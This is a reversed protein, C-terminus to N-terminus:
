PHHEMGRPIQWITEVERIQKRVKGEQKRSLQISMRMSQSTMGLRWGPRSGINMQPLRRDWIWSEKWQQIRIAVEREGELLFDDESISHTWTGSLFPSFFPSELPVSRSAHGWAVWLRSRMQLTPCFSYGDGMPELIFHSWTCSLAKRTSTLKKFCM